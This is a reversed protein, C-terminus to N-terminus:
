DQEHSEHDSASPKKAKRKGKEGKEAKEADLKAKIEQHPVHILQRMMRDFKKFEESPNTVSQRGRKNWLEILAQGEEPFHGYKFQFDSLPTVQGRVVNKAGVATVWGQHDIEWPRPHEYTAVRHHGWCILDAMQLPITRTMDVEEIVRVLNWVPWNNRSKKSQWDARIHRMFPENRDFFADIVDVFVGKQPRYFWDVMQPFAIRTCFRAPDPLHKVRRWRAYSALDIQCTFQQLEPNDMFPLFLTQLGNILYNRDFEDWGKYIGKCAWLDTMHIYPVDGREKCVKVWLPELQQWINDTAALCTLTMSRHPTVAGDLYAALAV